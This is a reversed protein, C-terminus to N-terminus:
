KCALIARKVLTKAIQIKYKNYPLAIADSVAAAGAAEANTENIPKGKIEDEAKAARYPNSYVANLCVRASKVVGGDSEIAAACNVIPFDISKRMAFKIFASKVGALPKPIQIETIIEDSELLTPKLGKDAVWFEDAKITRRSTVIRANLAVLAAAMDSPNVGDCGCNLCRDAETEVASSDLGLVDETDLSIQSLSLEPTKVRSLKKLCDSNCRTLHEIKTEAKLIAKGGLYQNIAEAARRGSAVAAIVSLPGSITADGGAFVKAINTSQTDPAAVILGRNVKLSPEAYAINPRQGIALIILDAEVIEKVSNDYTPAFKHESNYVAACRVLEMGSIQGKEKLIRSPGWSPMIKIGEKLAQEVEERLAPMEAESELCAMTVQKVGMRLASTAVDVAVSGGGIVLVKKATVKRLGRNMRTLFELGSTLLEEDKIGLTSQKWAGTACFVADFDKQLNELTIDKGINVKLKFQVGTSEIAKIQRKVVDKQLRYPPIGYTLVGGAEEMSEFVTVRHGLKRLYYAASLGAPGSGVIAVKKKTENKPSTFMRGANELIYDGVFREISRISLSEDLEGRNCDQECKHPCVRGTISALPNSNLLIQAAEPLDGERISSLYSPIDNGALCNSSCPPPGVRVAGFISHYRNDGVMAHCMAGGKRICDFRNDEKRFYWCRILQCINGGITGMERVAPSATRSAAESLAAYQNKATSNNAIDRLRTMAGIKLLGDEEKIYDLGPITKLNIVVEPYDRLVEFRMAGILDTGGALVWAKDGYQRLAAVAEDITGANIHKFTMLSKM